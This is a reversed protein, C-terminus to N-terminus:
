MSPRARDHPGRGGHQEKLPAIERVVEDLDIRARAEIHGGVQDVGRLVEIRREDGRAHPELRARELGLVDGSRRQSVAPM